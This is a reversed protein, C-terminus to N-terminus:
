LVVGERGEGGEEDLMMRYNDFTVRKVVARLACGIRSLDISLHRQV